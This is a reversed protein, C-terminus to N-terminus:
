DADHTTKVSWYQTTKVSWYQPNVYDKNVVISVNTPHCGYTEQELTPTLKWSSNNTIRIIKGDKVLLDTRFQNYTHQDIVIFDGDIDEMSYCRVTGDQNYYLRYEIKVPKIEQLQELAKWFNTM